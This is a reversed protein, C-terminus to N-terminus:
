VWVTAAQLEVTQDVAGADVPCCASMILLLCRYPTTFVLLFRVADCAPDKTALDDMIYNWSEGTTSRFLTLVATGFSQFNAHESLTSQLMVPAFLQVGIAAYIFLFLMLLAAINGVGPLSLLLREFLLQLTHLRKILRLMRLVRGVRIAAVMSGIGAASVLVGIVSAFVIVFDFVNWYDRWYLSGYAVLKLMAEVCFVLVFAINVRELALLYADSAGFYVVALAMTNGLICVLMVSDVARHYRQMFRFVPDRLPHSPAQLLKLPAFGTMFKRTEVWEKQSTTLSANDGYALKRQQFSEIIVGAFLKMIFFTMIVEFAVFFFVWHFAHDRVPHQDIGRSDACAYALDVWGETTSVQLLTNLAEFINDFSFPTVSRWEFERGPLAQSLFLCVLKGTPALALDPYGTTAFLASLEDTLQHYPVPFLLIRELSVDLTEMGSGQCSNLAGKFYQVCVAGFIIYLLAAVIIVSIVSPIAGLLADVSLRLAPFKTIVRLPRLARLARVAKVGNLSSSGSLGFSALSVCVIVADLWNWLSTFYADDGVIAGCAVVKILLEVTFLVTVLVDSVHLAKSLMSNPDNLPNDLALM